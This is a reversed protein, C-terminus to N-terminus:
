FKRFDSSKSFFPPWPGGQGGPWSAGSASLTERNFHIERTKRSSKVNIKGRVVVSQCGGQEINKTENSFCLLTELTVIVYYRM